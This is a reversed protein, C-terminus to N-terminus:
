VRNYVTSPLAVYSQGATAKGVIDVEKTIELKKFFTFSEM